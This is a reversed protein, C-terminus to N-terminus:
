VDAGDICSTALRSIDGFRRLVPEIQGVRYGTTSRILAQGGFPLEVPFHSDDLVWHGREEDLADHADSEDNAGNPDRDTERAYRDIKM